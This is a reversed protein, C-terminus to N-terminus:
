KGRILFDRIIMKKLERNRGFKNKFTGVTPFVRQSSNKLSAKSMKQKEVHDHLVHKIFTFTVGLEHLQDM